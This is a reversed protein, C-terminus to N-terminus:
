QACQATLHNVAKQICVNTQKNSAYVEAPLPMQKIEEELIELEIEFDDNLDEIPHSVPEATASFELEERIEENVREIEVQVLLKRRTANNLLTIPPPPPSSLECDDEVEVDIKMFSLDEGYNEDHLKEGIQDLRSFYSDVFADGDSLFDGEEDIITQICMKARQIKDLAEQHERAAAQQMRKATRIVQEVEKHLNSVICQLAKDEM